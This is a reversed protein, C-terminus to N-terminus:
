QIICAREIKHQLCEDTGRSGLVIDGVKAGLCSLGDEGLELIDTIGGSHLNGEADALDAFGEAILDGWFIEGEARTFELLHFELKEDAGVFGHAQDVARHRSPVLARIQALWLRIPAPLEPVAVPERLAGSIVGGDAQARFIEGVGPLGLLVEGVVGTGADINEVLEGEAGIFELSNRCASGKVKSLMLRVRALLKLIEVLLELGRAIRYRSLLFFGEDLLAMGPAQALFGRLLLDRGEALLEKLAEINGM